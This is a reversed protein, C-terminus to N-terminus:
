WRRVFADWAQLAPKLKAEADPYPMMDVIDALQQKFASWAAEASRIDKFHATHASFGYIGCSIAFPINHAVGCDRELTVRAGVSYEEDRM